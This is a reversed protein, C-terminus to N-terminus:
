EHRDGISPMVRDVLRVVGDEDNSATVVDAADKVVASANGMAVGLGAARLMSIDNEDDGGAVIEAPAIGYDAAMQCLARWKSAEPSQFELFSGLYKATSLLHITLRGDVREEVVPRVRRLEGIEGFTCAQIIPASVERRLDDVLRYGDKNKALYDEHYRTLTLGKPLFFDIGTEFSDTFVLPPLGLETLVAVLNVADDEAIPQAHLTAHTATDKVLAGSHCILPLPLGIKEAIPLATRYRRGTSLIVHMGAAVARRLAAVVTPRLEARGDLLTGDIDAALLKYRM